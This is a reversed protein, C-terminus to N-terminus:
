FSFECCARPVRRGTPRVRLLPDCNSSHNTENKIDDNNDNVNYDYNHSHNTTTATTAAAAAAPAAAAAASSLM